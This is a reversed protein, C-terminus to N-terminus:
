RRPLTRGRTTVWRGYSLPYGATPLPPSGGSGTLGALGLTVVGIVSGPRKIM